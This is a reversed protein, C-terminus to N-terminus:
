LIVDQHSFGCNDFTNLNLKEQKLPELNLKTKLLSDM